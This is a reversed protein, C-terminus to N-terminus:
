QAPAIAARAAHAFAFNGIRPQNGFINAVGDHFGLLHRIHFNAADIKADSAIMDAPKVIVANMGHRGRVAFDRLFVHLVHHLIGLRDIKRRVVRNYVGDALMEVDIALAADEIRHPHAARAHFHVHM